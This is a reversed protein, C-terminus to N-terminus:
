KSIVEKVYNVAFYTILYLPQTLIHYCPIFRYYRVTPLPANSPSKMKKGIMLPSNAKTLTITNNITAKLFLM